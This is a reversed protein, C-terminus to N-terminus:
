QVNKLALTILKQLIVEEDMTITGNDRKDDLKQIKNLLNKM